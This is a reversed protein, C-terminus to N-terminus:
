QSARRLANGERAEDVKERLRVLFWDVRLKRDAWIALFGRSQLEELRLRQRPTPEEGFRKLEIWGQVGETALVIDDPWGDTGCKIVDWGQKEANKRLYGELNSERPNLDM